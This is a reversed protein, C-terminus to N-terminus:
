SSSHPAAPSAAPVIPPAGLLPAGPAPPAPEEVEAPPALGWKRMQDLNDRNEAFEVFRAPDNDFEKRVTAPLRGFAYEAQVLLDMAEHFSPVDALDLFMPKREAGYQPLVGTREYRKMLVNVDSEEAFEQRTRSPGNIQALVPEHPRYAGYKAAM